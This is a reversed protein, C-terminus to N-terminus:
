TRKIEEGLDCCILNTSAKSFWSVSHQKYHESNSTMEQVGQYILLGLFHRWIQQANFPNFPFPQIFSGLHGAM